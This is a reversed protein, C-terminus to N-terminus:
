PSRGSPKPAPTFIRSMSATMQEATSPKAGNRALATPPPHDWEGWTASFQQASAFRGQTAGLYILWRRFVEDEGHDRILLRLPGVAKLRSMEGDYQAKWAAGFRGLWPAPLKAGRSLAPKKQSDAIREDSTALRGNPATSIAAPVTAGGHEGPAPLTSPKEDRHFHQHSGLTPILGYWKGDVEYKEVFGHSALAELVDLMDLQDYPLVDPKVNRSWPFVGRRDAVTWLGAFAVRLPLGTALEADYLDAHKFFAPAITRKRPM